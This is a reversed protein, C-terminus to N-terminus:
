TPGGQEATIEGVMKHFADDLEGTTLLAGVAVALREARGASQGMMYKTQEDHTEDLLRQYANWLDFVASSLIQETDKEPRPTRKPGEAVRKLSSDTTDSTVIADAIKRQVDPSANTIAAAVASPCDAAAEEVKLRHDAEDPAEDEPVATSVTGKPEALATV